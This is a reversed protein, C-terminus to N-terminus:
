IREKEPIEKEQAAAKGAAALGENMSGTRYGDLDLSVYRFGLAHLAASIEQRLAADGALRAIDEPLLELRAVLGGGEAAPQHVRVRFQRFGHALLLCEARDVRALGERTLTEGYVFRSALCAFSPKDWTPLGLARSLARIDEKYFGAEVLPSRVGLEALARHGPRYDGRDSLNSGDVVYSLSLAAARDRLASFLARKCLYCRDAPNQRIGPISLTDFTMVEHRIGHAACFKRADEVDRPPVFPSAVTFAMARGGLVRQAEFIVLTSDVGASFGVAVSGLGRLVEELRARKAATQASLEESLAGDEKSVKM